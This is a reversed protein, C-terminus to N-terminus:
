LLSKRLFFIQPGYLKWIHIWIMDSTKPGSRHGFQKSVNDASLVLLQLPFMLVTSCPCELNM